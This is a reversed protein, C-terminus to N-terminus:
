KAPIPDIKLFNDPNPSIHVTADSDLYFPELTQDKCSLASELGEIELATAKHKNLYPEEEFVVWANFELGKVNALLGTSPLSDSRLGAFESLQVNLGKQTQM